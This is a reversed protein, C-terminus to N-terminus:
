LRGFLMKHYNVFCGRHRCLPVQCYNCKSKTTVTWGSKTKINNHSCYFCNQTKWNETPVLFHENSMQTQRDNNQEIKTHQNMILQNHNYGIDAFSPDENFKMGLQPNGSIMVIFYILKLANFIYSKM